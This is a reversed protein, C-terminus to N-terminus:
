RRLVSLGESLKFGCWRCNEDPRYPNLRECTPNICRLALNGAELIDIRLTGSSLTDLPELRCHFSQISAGNLRLHQSDEASVLDLTPVGAESRLVAITGKPCGSSTNAQKDIVVFQDNASEAPSGRVIAICNELIITNPPHGLQSVIAFHERNPSNTDPSAERVVRVFFEGIRITDRDKLPMREGPRKLTQSGAATSLSQSLNTVTLAGNDFSIEAHARSILERETDFRLDASRGRGLIVPLTFVGGAVLAGSQDTV